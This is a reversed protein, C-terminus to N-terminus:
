LLLEAAGEDTILITNQPAQKMYSRIAKAKSSGGAVAIVYRTNKLDELKMGITNVKHVVEGDENFYYGFAESVAKKEKLKEIIYQPTRRRLAMTIANGIGHLVVSASRIREMMEIMAPEKMVTKYMEDSVEDPFHLVRYQSRTNKAMKACITNAQNHVDEGIGGRAPVFLLDRGIDPTLMDAVAAMTTGGNVAIINEGQLCNKMCKACARGMESKVWPSKDSDGSVVIVQMIGLAKKLREELVNIGTMERMFAELGDVIKLGDETLTMGASSVHILNQNKLLDVEGRLVRETLGLNDALVRRGVPQMVRVSQLIIYRRKMVPILDPLVRKQIDFISNDM